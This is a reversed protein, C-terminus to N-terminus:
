NFHLSFADKAPKLLYNEKVLQIPWVPFSTLIYNNRAGICGCVGLHGTGKRYMYKESPVHLYPLKPLRVFRTAWLKGLKDRNRYPCLSVIGGPQSARGNYTVGLMCHAHIQQYRNISRPPPLCHSLLTEQM